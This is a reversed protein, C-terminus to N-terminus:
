RFCAMTSLAGTTDLAASTDASCRSALLVSTTLRQTFSIWSAACLLFLMTCTPARAHRRTSTHAAHQTHPQTPTLQDSRRRLAHLRQGEEALGREHLM